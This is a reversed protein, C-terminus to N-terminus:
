VHCILIYLPVITFLGLYIPFKMVKEIHSQTIKFFLTIELMQCWHLKAAYAYM